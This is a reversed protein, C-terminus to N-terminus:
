EALTFQSNYIDAYFGGKALLEEHTGQGVVKGDDLVIIRDANMITGIRQQLHQDTFSVTDGPRFDDRRAAPPAPPPTEDARRPLGDILLAAYPLTLRRHTASDILVAQTTKLEVIQGQRQTAHIDDAIYGVVLGLNLHRRIEIIRKPDDLLRAVTLHLRYLDASSALRLADLIDM